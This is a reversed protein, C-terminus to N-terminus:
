NNTDFPLKLQTDQEFKIEFQWVQECFLVQVIQLVPNLKFTIPVQSSLLLTTGACPPDKEFPPLKACHWNNAETDIPVLPSVKPKPITQLLQACPELSDPPAQIGQGELLLQLVQSLEPLQKLQLEPYKKPLLTQVLQGVLQLIQVFAVM